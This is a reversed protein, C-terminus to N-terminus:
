LKSVGYPSHLDGGLRRPLDLVCLRDTDNRHQRALAPGDNCGVQCISKSLAASREEHIRHRVIRGKGAQVPSAIGFSQDLNELTPVNLLGFLRALGTDVSRKANM